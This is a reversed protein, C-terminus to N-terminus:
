LRGGNRREIREVLRTLAEAKAEAPGFLPMEIQLDQLAERFLQGFNGNATKLRGVWYRDVPMREVGSFIHGFRSPAVLEIEDLSKGNGNKGNESPSFGFDREKERKSRVELETDTPVSVKEPLSDTPVSVKSDTPVSVKEDPLQGNPRVGKRGKLLGSTNRHRVKRTLTPLLEVLDEVYAIRYVNAPQGKKVHRKGAATLVGDEVLRKLSDIVTQRSVGLKEAWDDQYCWFQRYDHHRSDRKAYGTAMLLISQATSGQYHAVIGSAFLEDMISVHNANARSQPTSRTPTYQQQRSM